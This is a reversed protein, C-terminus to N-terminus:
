LPAVRKMGQTQNSTSSTGSVTAITNVEYSKGIYIGLSYGSPPPSNGAFVILASQDYNDAASATILDTEAIAVGHLPDNATTNTIGEVANPVFVTTSNNIRGLEVGSDRNLREHQAQIESLSKQYLNRANLSNRSMQSQLSGSDIASVGILTMALLLILSVLLIVGQSRHYSHTKRQMM